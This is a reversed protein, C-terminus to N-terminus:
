YIMKKKGPFKYMNWFNLLGAKAPRSYNKLVGGLKAFNPPTFFLKVDTVNRFPFAFDRVLIQFNNNFAKNQHSLAITGGRGM